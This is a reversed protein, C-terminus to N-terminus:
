GQPDAPCATCVQRGQQTPGAPKRATSPSIPTQSFESREFLALGSGIVGASRLWGSPIPLDTGSAWSAPQCPPIIYVESHSCSSFNFVEIHNRGDPNESAVVFIWEDCVSPQSMTEAKRFVVIHLRGDGTPRLKESRSRSLGADISPLAIHPGSLTKWPPDLRKTTILFLASGNICYRWVLYESALEPCM